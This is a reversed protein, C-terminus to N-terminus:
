IYSLASIMIDIDISEGVDNRTKDRSHLGCLVCVCARRVCVFV